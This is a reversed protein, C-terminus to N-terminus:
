QQMQELRCSLTTWSWRSWWWRSNITYPTATVTIRNGPTPYGDLPSATYGTAVFTSKVERFGGAGSGAARHGGGGGGGGAVVM